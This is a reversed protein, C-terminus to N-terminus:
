GAVSCTTPAMAAADPGPSGQRRLYDVTDSWAPPAYGLRYREWTAEEMGRERLYRRAVEGEPRTRLVAEFHQGALDCIEYLDTRAKMRARETDSLQREEIAVGVRQGLEKVAENFGLGQTQMVFQFADGGAGCGFCHYIGKAPVVNFSPTKENHFPCLGVYSSGKRTLSVTQGVVEALDIRDRITDILERPIM